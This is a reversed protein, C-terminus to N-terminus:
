MFTTRWIIGGIRRGVEAFAQVEEVTLARGLVRQERYSLWKKLVQYGGLQYEWVRAPVNRWYAREDLYVDFTMDGLGAIADGLAAREEATYEREEVRGQGPMVADGSGYHGWGATVAFDDGAMSDGDAGSEQVIAPVAIAAMTPTLAGSTVGAVDTDSDLLGALQRGRAASAVLEAAAGDASGDPWGPLPIRPWEMRLAAANAAHYQPNHLVAIVHHFLDDVSLGLRDLYNQAAPLLNPTRQAGNGGLGLSNDRLWMPICTASRDMLDISGMSSIVQPPSWERHPKQQSVM